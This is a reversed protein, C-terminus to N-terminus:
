SVAKESGLSEDLQRLGEMLLYMADKELSAQECRVGHEILFEGTSWRVMEYFALEGELEPADAHKAAGNEFWIRGQRGDHSLTLCATKMGMALTQVIDPLNLNELDGTIGRRRPRADQESRLAERTLINEVRAVLEEMDDSKTLFDDAGHRLARLKQERSGTRSLFAFPVKCLAEDSRLEEFMLFAASSDEDIDALVLDPPSKLVLEMAADLDSAEEVELGENLLRLKLLRRFDEQPDAVLVRPKTNSKRTLQKDLVKQFVEVVEPDFQRGAQSVMVELAEDPDKAEAKGRGSTLMLYADIVAVIRAGMPIERGRLGDPYGTGDYREHHHRIIPLIKWPFDVHEFLRASADVHEEMKEKAKESFGTRVEVAESDLTVKGLDRLLTAVGLEQITEADAGMEEAVSRALRRAKHSSGGFICDDMELLGVLVDIVQILAEIGRDSFSSAPGKMFAEFPDRLLSYIHEASVVYDDAGLQLQIPSKRALEYNALPVVRCQPRTKLLRASLEKATMDPLHSEVLVADFTVSSFAREAEHGSGARTVTFGQSSLHGAISERLQADAAVILFNRKVILGRGEAPM